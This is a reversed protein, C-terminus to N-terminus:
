LREGLRGYHKRFDDVSMNGKVSNAYRCIFILNDPSACKEPTLGDLYCALVSRKHDCTRKRYDNPNVQESLEDAFTIGTLQCTSTKM